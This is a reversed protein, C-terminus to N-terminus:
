AAVGRRAPYTKIETGSIAFTLRRRSDATDFTRKIQKGFARM